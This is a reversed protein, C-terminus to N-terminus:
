RLYPANLEFIVDKTGLSILSTSRGIIEGETSQFPQNNKDTLIRLSYEGTLPTGGMSNEQGIRFSQGDYVHPIIKFAVPRNLQPDFLLIILQDTAAVMEQYEPAIRITGSIERSSNQQKDPTEIEALLENFGRFFRSMKYTYGNTGLAIPATISGAIENQTPQNVNGDRDHVILLRYAGELTIGEHAHEQGIYFTTPPLFPNLINTALPQLTNPDLLFVYANDMKTIYGTVQPLTEVRGSIGANIEAQNRDLENFLAYTTIGIFALLGVFFFLKNM